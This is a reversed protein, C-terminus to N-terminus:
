HRSSKGYRVESREHRSQWVSHRLLETDGRRPHPIAIVKDLDLRWAALAPISDCGLGRPHEGKGVTWTKGVAFVTGIERVKTQLPIINQMPM